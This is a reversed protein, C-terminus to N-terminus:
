SAIHVVQKGNCEALMINIKWAKKGHANFAVEAKLRADYLTDAYIEIRKDNYFAIYGNM